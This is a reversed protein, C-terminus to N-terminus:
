NYNELEIQTLKGDSFSLQVSNSYADDSMEYTLSCYTGDDSTYDRDPEGMISKCDDISMDRTIGNNLTSVYLNKWGDFMFDVGLIECDRIKRTGNGTLNKFRVYIYSGDAATAKESFTYQYDELDQDLYSDDMSFGMAEIDSYTMNGLYYTVGNYVFGMSNWDWDGVPEVSTQTTPEETTPEETPKETPEETPEETPAETPEETTPTPEQVTNSLMEDTIAYVIYWDGDTKGSIITEQLVVTGNKGSYTEEVTFSYAKKIDIKSGFATKIKNEVDDINSVKSIKKVEYSVKLNSGFTTDQMDWYGENDSVGASLYVNGLMIDRYDPHFAEYAEELDRNEFGEFFKEIPKEAAKKDKKEIIKPAFFAACIGGAILIVAIIIGVILGTKKKKPPNNPMKPQVPQSYTNFQPQTQNYMQNGAQQGYMGNTTQQGQNYMNGPMQQSQNYMNNPMQQSQNYMNNPIQQSQNAMNNPMQQSQGYMDNMMQPPMQGYADQPVIVTQDNDNSNFDM